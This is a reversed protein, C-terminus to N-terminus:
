RARRPWARRARGRRRPRRRDRLLPAAGRPHRLPRLRRHRAPRVAARGRVPRDPRARGEHLRHRRRDAGAVGDLLETVLPTRAPQGPHLRNWREVTSRRRACRRTRPPRGCSSASTTTSPWSPRPRRPGRGPGLGLVPDHGAQEPGRAGRGLPLPGPRHGGRHRAPRADGADRLERQLPHPLLLRGGPQRRVDPPHRAEVIAAMEYAFAPDYAQCSPCPPPSCSATATRTSSARASCRPAGPPPAWAPLGPGPRRRGALHPRRGAPLRVDFLLHLVAGDARGPQRLQHRRRHLEGDLRGRHHGGRPDPRGPGRHLLAAPRPRRARLAPGAAAYIELERFLADM